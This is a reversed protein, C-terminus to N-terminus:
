RTKQGVEDIRSVMVGIASNMEEEFKTFDEPSLYRGVIDKARSSFESILPMVAHVLLESTRQQRIASEQRKGLLDVLKISQALLANRALAFHAEDPEKGKAMKQALKEVLEDTPIVQSDYLMAQALAVPRRASLLETDDMAADILEHGATAM